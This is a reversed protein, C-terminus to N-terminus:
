LKVLIFKSLNKDYNKEFISVNVLSVLFSKLEFREPTGIRILLTLM